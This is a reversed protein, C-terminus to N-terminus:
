AALAVAATVAVAADAMVVALVALRRRAALRRHYAQLAAPSTLRRGTLLTLGRMLGFTGALAVAAPWSGALIALSLVLYTAASSVITLMGAGLQAGWGAGYVWPRYSDMWREDVQRRWGPLLRPRGAVDVVLALAALVMVGALRPRLGVVSGLAQGAVGLLAGTLVGGAAAGAVFWSATVGWRNGRGREGFPTISSLM